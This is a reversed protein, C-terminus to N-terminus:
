LTLRFIQYLAKGWKTLFVLDFFYCEYHMYYIMINYSYKKSALTM